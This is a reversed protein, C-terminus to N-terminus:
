EALAEYVKVWQTLSKMHLVEVAPNVKRAGEPLRKYDEPSIIVAVDRGNKQIRVPEAQAMDLLRGIKNKADSATISRM